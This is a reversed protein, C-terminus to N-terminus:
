SDELTDAFGRLSAIIVAKEHDKLNPTLKKVGNIILTNRFEVGYHALMKRQVPEVKTCCSKKGLAKLAEAITRGREVITKIQPMLADIEDKSFDTGAEIIGDSNM